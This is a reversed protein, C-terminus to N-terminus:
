RFVRNRCNFECNPAQQLGRRQHTNDKIFPGDDYGDFVVTAAGYHQLTFTAYSEAIAGYTDGKNWPLRHLLSGGDLVYCDTISKSVTVIESALEGAHNLIAHALQSKDAKRLIDRTEFLAPPFPSLEYGLVNSLSIDGSASVVLFRQNRFLQSM